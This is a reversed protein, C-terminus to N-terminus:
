SAQIFEDSWEIIPLLRDPALDRINEPSVWRYEHHEPRGLEPSDPLRVKVTETEALYYRAIKKRGGGYPETEKFVHGWSFLLDELGTEERTERVAADLPDEGAEVVGKPFDWNRYARLFLYLWGGGTRRIVVVGASLVM